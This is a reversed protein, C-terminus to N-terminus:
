STHCSDHPCKLCLNQPRTRGFCLFICSNMEEIFDCIIVDEGQDQQAEEPDESGGSGDLVERPSLGLLDEGSPLEAM